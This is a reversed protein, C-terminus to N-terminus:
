NQSSEPPKSHGSKNSKEGTKKSRPSLGHKDMIEKTEKMMPDEEWNNYPVTTNLFRDDVEENSSSMCEEHSQEVTNSDETSNLKPGHWQHLENHIVEVPGLDVEWQGELGQIAEPDFIM